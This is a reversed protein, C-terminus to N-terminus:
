QLVADLSDATLIRESWRLLTETDADEVRQRISEMPPGFKREILRLLVAAEGQHRGQQIGQQRGQEIYGDIFTQMIPDGTSTQQLLTRVHFRRPARWSRRGHYLVIPYVPPLRRADAHQRRHQEGEAAIYRFLQLLTWHEPSSKHEFLLYVSLEADRCRVRYVLDSYASRLDTAVYTDKSVALTGLDVEALLDAPLQNRLFDQAIERRGFSERFFADHPNVIDDM